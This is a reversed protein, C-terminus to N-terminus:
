PAAIDDLAVQEGADGLYPRAVADGDDARGLLAGFGQLVEDVEATMGEAQRAVQVVLLGFAEAFPHHRDQALAIALPHQRSLRQPVCRRRRTASCARLASARAGCPASRFSAGLLLATHTPAELAMASGASM